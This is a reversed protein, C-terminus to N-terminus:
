IHATAAPARDWDGYRGNEYQVPIAAMQEDSLGDFAAINVAHFWGNFPAM